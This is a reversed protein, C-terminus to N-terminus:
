HRLDHTTHPNIQDPLNSKTKFQARQAAFHVEAFRLFIPRPCTRFQGAADSRRNELAANETDKESPAIWLM